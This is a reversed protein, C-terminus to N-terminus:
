RHCRWLLNYIKTLLGASYYTSGRLLTQETIDLRLFRTMVILVLSFDYRGNEIRICPEGYHYTIKCRVEIVIFLVTRLLPRMLRSLRKGLYMRESIVETGDNFTIWFNWEKSFEM